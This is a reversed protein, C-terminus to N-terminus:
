LNPLFEVRLVQWFHRPYDPFSENRLRDIARQVGDEMNEAFVDVYGNYQAHFGGVTKLWVRYKSQSIM